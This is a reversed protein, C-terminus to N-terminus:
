CFHEPDYNCVFTEIFTKERDADFEDYTDLYGWATLAIRSDMGAYPTMLVRSYGSGIEEQVVQGLENRLTTCDDTSLAPDANCNYWVVVGAHEMNHVAVEKPVALDSIGFQAPSLAHPGSTPPNSTYDDYTVGLDFHSRDTLVEPHQIPYPYDAVNVDGGGDDGGGGCDLTVVLMLALLAAFILGRPLNRMRRLKAPQRM